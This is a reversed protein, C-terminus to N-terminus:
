VCAHQNVDHDVADLVRALQDDAVAALDRLRDAAVRRLDRRAEAIWRPVNETQVLLTSFLLAQRFLFWTSVMYTPIQKYLLGYSM